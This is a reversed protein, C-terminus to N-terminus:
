SILATTFINPFRYLCLLFLVEESPAGGQELIVKAFSWMTNTVTSMCDRRGGFWGGVLYDAIRGNYGLYEIDFGMGLPDTYWPVTRFVWPHQM